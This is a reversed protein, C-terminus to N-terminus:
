FMWSLGALPPQQPAFCKSCHHQEVARVQMLVLGDFLAFRNRDSCLSCECTPDKNEVHSKKKKFGDRWSSCAVPTIHVIGGAFGLVWKLLFGPHWSWHVV